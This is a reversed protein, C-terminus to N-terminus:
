VRRVSLTGARFGDGRGPVLTAETQTADALVRPMEITFRSGHGPESHVQVSHGLVAATRRVISLGLGMGESAPDLQSFEEFLRERVEPALGIGTDIVDLYVSSRRLRCGVLVGGQGTYKIANGVLNGVITTLMVPDSRVLAGLSRVRLRLGKARAHHRWRPGILSLVNSIPFETLTASVESRASAEALACLDTLLQESAKQALGLLRVGREDASKLRPRLLELAMSIVQLPHRLDHGAAAMMRARAEDSQRALELARLLAEEAVRISSQDRVIKLLGVPAGDADRMPTMVGSAWFRTGDGRMHYRADEARGAHLAELAESAPAEAARDEPTFILDALQGLMAQADFGFLREAGQNWGRVRRDLDMEIIAHEVAGDLIQRLREADRADAEPDAARESTQQDTPDIPRVDGPPCTATM